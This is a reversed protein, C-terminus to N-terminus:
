DPIMPRKRLWGGLLTGYMGYAIFLGLVETYLNGEQINTNTMAIAIKILVALMIGYTLGRYWDNKIIGLFRDFFFLYFYAFLWGSIFHITIWLWIKNEATERMFEPQDIMLTGTINEIFIVVLLAVTAVTGGIFTQKIRNKM